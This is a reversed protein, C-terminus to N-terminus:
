LFELIYPNKLSDEPKEPFHYKELNKDLVEKKNRSLLVREFLASDFQRRLERLSWHNIESEKEYFKREKEKLRM